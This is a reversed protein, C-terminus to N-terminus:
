RNNTYYGSACATKNADLQTQLTKIAWDFGAEADPKIASTELPEGGVVSQSGDANDGKVRPTKITESSRFKLRGQEIKDIAFAMIKDVADCSIRKSMMRTTTNWDLRERRNGILAEVGTEVAVQLAPSTLHTTNGLGGQGNAACNFTEEIMKAATVGDIGGHELAQLADDDFLEAADVQQAASLRVDESITPLGDRALEVNAAKAIFRCMRLPDERIVKACGALPTKRFEELLEESREDAAGFTTTAFSLNTLALSNPGGIISSVEDSAGADQDAMAGARAAIARLGAPSIDPNARRIDRWVQSCRRATVHTYRDVAASVTAASIAPRRYKPGTCGSGGASAGGAGAEASLCIRPLFGMIACAGTVDGAGGTANCITEQLQGIPDQKFIGLSSNLNALQENMYDKAEGTWDVCRRIATVDGAHMAECRAQLIQKAEARIGNMDCSQTFLNFGANLMGDLMNMASAIYPMALLQTMVVKALMTQMAAKGKEIIDSVDFSAKMYDMINMSGCGLNIGLGGGLRVNGSITQPGRDYGFGGFDGFSTNGGSYWSGSMEQAQAVQPSSFLAVLVALLLALCRGSFRLSQRPAPTPSNVTM